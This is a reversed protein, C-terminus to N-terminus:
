KILHDKAASIRIQSLEILNKAGTKEMIHGRHIEVTRYSIGILQAIEKSSHGEVTLAMVERERQTLTSLKHSAIKCAEVQMLLQVNHQLAEQVRELLVSGHVPKTLFDIAGARITNASMQISGKGSLFIIALHIDRRLLEQQLRQGNMEPMDVDLIVCGRMDDSCVELFGKASSFSVTKYNAVGLLMSISERVAPDDDVIYVYTEKRV